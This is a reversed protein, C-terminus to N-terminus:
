TEVRAKLSIGVVVREKGLSGGKQVLQTLRALDVIEDRCGGLRFRTGRLM